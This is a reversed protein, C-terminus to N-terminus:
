KKPPTSDKFLEIIASLEDCTSINVFNGKSWDDRDCVSNTNYRSLLDSGHLAILIKNTNIKTDIKKAPLGSSSIKEGIYAITGKLKISLSELSCDEDDFYDFTASIGMNSLVTKGNISENNEDAQCSIKWSGQLDKLEEPIESLSDPSSASGGCATLLSILALLVIKKM